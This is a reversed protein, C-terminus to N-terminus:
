DFPLTMFVQSIHVRSNIQAMPDCPITSRRDSALVFDSISLLSTLIGEVERTVFDQNAFHLVPGDSRPPGCATSKAITFNLSDLILLPFNTRSGVEHLTFYRYGFIIDPGHIKSLRM